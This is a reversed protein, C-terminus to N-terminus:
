EFIMRVKKNMKEYSWPPDWVLIVEVNEVDNLSSVHERVQDILYGGLPCAPTTFTMRIVVNKNKIDIGYILGLDVINIGLEPDLVEKIKKIIANKTVM